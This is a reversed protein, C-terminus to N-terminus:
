SRPLTGLGESYPDPLSTIVAVEGAAVTGADLPATRYQVGIETALVQLAALAVIVLAQWSFGLVLPIILTAIAALIASGTKLAGAWPGDVLRVLYTGGVGATLAILQGGETVDVIGDALATQLAGLLIIIAPLIAAAYKRLM